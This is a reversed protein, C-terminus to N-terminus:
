TASPHERRKPPLKQKLKSYITTWTMFQVSRVALRFHREARRKGFRDSQTETQTKRNTQRCRQTYMHRTADLQRRPVASVLQRACSHENDHAPESWHVSWAKSLISLRSSTAMLLDHPQLVVTMPAKARVSVSRPFAIAACTVRVRSTASVSLVCPNRQRKTFMNTHQGSSRHPPLPRLVDQPLTLHPLLAVDDPTRSDCKIQFKSTGHTKSSTKKM